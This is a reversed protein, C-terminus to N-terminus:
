KCKIKVTKTTKSYVADGKYTVKAKYTGKKALKTIKFTAKGKSNTKATYTKGNVKLYLKVKSMAVNKDTKLTVSYKKTKTKVKFTAAKATLKASAKANSTDSPSEKKVVTVDFGNVTVSDRISYGIYLNSNSDDEGTYSKCNSITGYEGYWYVDKGSGGTNYSFTSSELNGYQGAVSVAHDSNYTFECGSINTHSGGTKKGNVTTYSVEIAGGTNKNFKCNTIQLYNIQSYVAGGSGAANADFNCNSIQWNKDSYSSDCIAGGSFTATNATFICNDIICTLSKRAGAILSGAHSAYIAGGNRAQNNSFECGSLILNTGADTFTGLLIAGGNGNSYLTGQSQDYQALGNKFKVNKITLGFIRELNLIRSASMGDLTHGNGEITMNKSITIGGVDFGSNYAYDRDLTITSGAETTNIKNQLDTFTGRDAELVDTSVTETLAKDEGDFATATQNLDEAAVASLTLFVCGLLCLALLIRKM